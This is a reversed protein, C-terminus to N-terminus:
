SGPCRWPNLLHIPIWIPATAQRRSVNFTTGVPTVTFAPLLHVKMDGAKARLLPKFEHYSKHKEWPIWLSSTYQPYCSSYNQKNQKHNGSNLIFGCLTAYFQVWAPFCHTALFPVLSSVRGHIIGHKLRYPKLNWATDDNIHLIFTNYQVNRGVVSSYIQINKQCSPEWSIFSWQCMKCGGKHYCFMSNWFISPKSVSDTGGDIGPIPTHCIKSKLSSVQKVAKYFDINKTKQFISSPLCKNSIRVCLTLQCSSSSRETTWLVLLATNLWKCVATNIILTPLSVM